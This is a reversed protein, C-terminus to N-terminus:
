YYVKGAGSIHVAREDHFFDYERDLVRDDVDDPEYDDESSSMAAEYAEAQIGALEKETLEGDWVVKKGDDDLENKGDDGLVFIPLILEAYGGEDPYCDEPPGNIKGRVLPEVDFEAQLNHEIEEGDEDERLVTFEYTYSM